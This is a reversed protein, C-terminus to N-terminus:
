GTTFGIDEYSASAFGFAGFNALKSSAAVIEPRQYTTLSHVEAWIMADIENGIAIAKDADFESTARDFLADLEDSGVRAYNQQIRDGTPKAYISKSGSIPFAGGLWSFVTFDFNGPRVYKDFFDGTPVVVADVKAGVAGLMRQILQLEQLSTAVQSPIVFRITLPQGDKMRVGGPGPTWGATDLMLAAQERDYTGLTAANDQYGKQNPMFLHNNLPVAPVGLPGLLTRAIQDRDIARALARRVNVDRLVESQGNMTLHRFNFGGAKRIAMGALTEARRLKNVDPGVDIFDIEGNALADIQADPNIVRFIIRELKAPNGWWKENRVLSIVQATHDIGELKFPGATTLPGDKWGDNFVAPDRNTSAPYLGFLGKWDAYPQHFTVVVERDDSGRAVGEIKDYGQTSAVRFAPNTGNRAKWQAEYDAWTIPTDDYWRAKPNIRYTVVQKPTTATLEAAEVYDTSLVPQGAADFNFPSGLLGGMVAGTDALSGDLHGTNFNPPLQAIPWRLTGGEALQDRDTRNVDNGTASPVASQRTGSAGGSGCGSLALALLVAPVIALRQRRPMAGGEVM